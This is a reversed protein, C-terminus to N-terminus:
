GWGELIKRQEDTINKPIDVNITVYLDGRSGVALGQGKLRMRTGPQTGAPIRLMVKKTLTAVEKQTGLIAEKFTINVSTYIDNGKREFNQDPMVQVTIILDGNQGGSHSVLGQRALRIKEGSEIGAPIKVALKKNTQSIRLTRTTGNVAEMFSINLTATLDQGRVPRRRRQQAFPGAHGEGRGGFIQSLVDEFGNIGGTGGGFRFTQFGGRGGTGQRFLDSFDFGANGPNAGPFGHGGGAGAGTFAGYKRMTDYEERKKKDSLTDYAESIEKFKEESAKNGKNRDPHHKKALKRFSRKIEDESASEGVGLTDYYTKGM